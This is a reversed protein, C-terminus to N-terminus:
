KFSLRGILRMRLIPIRGHMGRCSVCAWYPREKILMACGFCRMKGASIAKKARSLATKAAAVTPNMYVRLDVCRLQIISHDPSHAIEGRNVSKGDNFCSWCLDIDPDADELCVTCVFRTTLM